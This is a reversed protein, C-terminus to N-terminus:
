MRREWLDMHDEIAGRRELEGPYWERPDLKPYGPGVYLYPRTYHPVYVVRGVRYVRHTKRGPVDFDTM